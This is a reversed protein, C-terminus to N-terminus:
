ILYIFSSFLASAPIFTLYAAILSEMAQRFTGAIPLGFGWRSRLVAWMLKKGLDEQGISSGKRTTASAGM